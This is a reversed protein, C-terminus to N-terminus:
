QNIFNPRGIRVDDLLWPLWPLRSERVRESMTDAEVALGTTFNYGSFTLGPGLANFWCQAFVPDIACVTANTWNGDM